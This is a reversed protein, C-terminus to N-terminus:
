QAVAVSQSREWADRLKIRGLGTVSSVHYTMEVGAHDYTRTKVEFWKRGSPGYEELPLISRGRRFQYKRQVFERFAKVPLGLTKATEDVGFSTPSGSVREAFAVLPAQAELQAAQRSALLLATSLTQPIVWDPKPASYTGTKRIAPIVEHKLWRRFRAAVSAPAILLLGYIGSETIATMEQAGGLTDVSISVREDADLKSLADRYKSIELAECVDKGIWVPIGNIEGTRVEVTDFNFPIIDHM